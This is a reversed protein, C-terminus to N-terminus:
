GSTPMLYYCTAENWNLRKTFSFPFNYFRFKTISIGDTVQVNALEENAELLQKTLQENEQQVKAMEETKAHYELVAEHLMEEKAVLKEQLKAVLNDSSAADEDDSDPGCFQIKPKNSAAAEFQLRTM